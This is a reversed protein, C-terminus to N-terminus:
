RMLLKTKQHSGRRTENVVTKKSDESPSLPPSPKEPTEKILASIWEHHSQGSSRIVKWLGWELYQCM